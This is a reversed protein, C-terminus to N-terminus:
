MGSLYSEIQELTLPGRHVATVHGQNNVFFTTPLNAVGYENATGGEEDLLIPFTIPADLDEALFAEITELEEEYNVGLVLPEYNSNEYAAQLEPM